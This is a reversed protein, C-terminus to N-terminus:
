NDISLTIEFEAIRGGINTYGSEFITVQKTAKIFCVKDLMYTTGLRGYFFLLIPIHAVIQFLASVFIRM